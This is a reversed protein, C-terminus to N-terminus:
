LLDNRLNMEILRHTVVAVVICVECGRRLYMSGWSPTFAPKTHFSFRGTPEFAADIGLVPHIGTETRIFVRSTNRQWFYFLGM